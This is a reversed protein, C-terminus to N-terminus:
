DKICRVATADARFSSVKNVPVAPFGSHPFLYIFSEENNVTSTWYRGSVGVSVVLGADVNRRGTSSFKLTSSAASAEHIINEASVLTEMETVTPLRYDQPCPNNPGSVGQWLGDEIANPYAGLDLWNYDQTTSPPTSFDGLGIYFTTNNPYISASGPSSITTVAATGTTGDSYNVFEHGDSYRGWQFLSGYANHDDNATAQETPNFAASNLNAYNAGLNNNLWVRGDLATVPMYIFKHNPLNPNTFNRDPIGGIVDLNINGKSNGNVQFDLVAITRETDFLQKMANFSADGDVEITATITGTGASFSGSPYTLRFSNADGGEGTGATNPIYVGSYADYVGIGGTYPINITLQNSTNNVVGQIDVLPTGDLISVVIATQSLTFIADGNTVNITKICNLGLKTWVGTLVGLSGPTGTLTYEVIQSSGSIITASAPSVSNVSVGSVGSLVLDSVDFGITASNFSNNSITVTFKNSATFSVGNVFTGEFGNINCDNIVSTSSVGEGICNWDPSSSSGSNIQLCDEDLNYIMLANAPDSIADRQISTMRPFLFGKDTSSIDLIASGDPTTTGIGIQCYSTQISLILACALVIIKKM